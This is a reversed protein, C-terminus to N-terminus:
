DSHLKGVDRTPRLWQSLFVLKPFSQGWSSRLPATSSRLYPPPQTPLCPSINFQPLSQTHGGSMTSPQAPTQNLSCLSPCPRPSLIINFQAVLIASLQAVLIARLKPQVLSSEGEQGSSIENQPSPGSRMLEGNQAGMGMWLTLSFPDERAPNLACPWTKGCSGNPGLM